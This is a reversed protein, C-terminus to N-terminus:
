FGANVARNVSSTVAEIVLRALIEGFLVHKGSYKIQPPRDGSAVAIADTGTGTAPTNSVASVIELDQLAAVKAETAIAVAEVLAAPTLKATTLCITNITGSEPMSEGLQRYEAPDGARRPNSLGSTVLVIVDAGQETARAMRLSEMSAATMMGVTAGQWNRAACYEALTIDPLALTKNKTEYNKDVKLNLIHDAQILGGNLVASSAVSYPIGFELHVFASTHELLIHETLKEKKMTVAGVTGTRRPM